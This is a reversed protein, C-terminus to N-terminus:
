LVLFLQQQMDKVPSATQSGNRKTKELASKSGSHSQREQLACSSFACSKKLPVVPVDVQLLVGTPGWGPALGM